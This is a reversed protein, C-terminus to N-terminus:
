VAGRAKVERALQAAAHPADRAVHALAYDAWDRFDRAVELGPLMLVAGAARAPELAFWALLLPEEIADPPAQGTAADRKGTDGELVYAILKPVYREYLALLSEQETARGKPVCRQKVWRVYFPRFGLNKPDMYTMGCRSITAPSAYQLDFVEIILKVYTQLRIREGNPLTLLKNDDMVSNM